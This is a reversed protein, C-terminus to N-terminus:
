YIERENLRDESCEEIITFNFDDIGFKNLAFDITQKPRNAADYLHQHYRKEINTSQGIYRHHNYKNEYCYIGITM